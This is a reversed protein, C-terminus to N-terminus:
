RRAPCASSCQGATQNLPGPSAASARQPGRRTGPRRRRSRQCTGRFGRGFQHGCGRRAPRVPSRRVASKDLRRTMGLRLRPIGRSQQRGPPIETASEAFSLRTTNSPAASSVRTKIRRQTKAHSKERRRGGGVSNELVGLGAIEGRILRRPQAAAEQFPGRGGPHGHQDHDGPQLTVFQSIFAIAEAPSLDDARHQRAQQLQGNLWLKMGAPRSACKMRSRSGRDWRGLPTWGSGWWGTM